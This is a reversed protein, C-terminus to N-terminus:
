SPAGFDMVEQSLRRAAIKARPGYTDTKRHCDVCLTRGNSLDFRLDPFASYPKIHDAQLRGGRQGCIQCTFDDREFVQRRWDREQASGHKDRHHEYYTRPKVGRHANIRAVVHPQLAACSRSCFKQPKSEPSVFRKGCTGCTLMRCEDCRKQAASNGFFGAGCMTCTKQKRPQHEAAWKQWYAAQYEPTKSLMM